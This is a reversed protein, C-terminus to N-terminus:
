CTLLLNGIRPRDIAEIPARADAIAITNNGGTASAPWAREEPQFAGRVDSPWGSRCPIQVFAVMVGNSRGLSSAPFFNKVSCCGDSYSRRPNFSPFLSRGPSVGFGM